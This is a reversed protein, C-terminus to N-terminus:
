DLQGYGAVPGQSKAYNCIPAAMKQRAHRQMTAKVTTSPLAVHRAIEVFAGIRRRCPDRGNWRNKVPRCLLSISGRM